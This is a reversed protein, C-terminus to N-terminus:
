KESEQLPIVIHFSTGEEGSEVSIDWGHAEVIKRVISLGLGVSDQTSFGYDFILKQIEPPIPEGDNTVLIILHTETSTTKITITQPKGHIIANELLNTFVQSLKGQDCLVTPLQDHTFSVTKPIVTSAVREILLNLDVDADKEVALGADALMLSRKLLEKMYEIQKSIIHSENYEYDLLQTYGEISTLCNNLDHAIFHAFESLEEKQRILKEEAKKRETIDRLVGLFNTPNGESDSIVAVSLDAPYTSGDKRIMSYEINRISGRELLTSINNVARDQDEPIIFDFANRGILDAERAGYLKVAQENVMLIKSETDSLIIADPSLEILRRYREESRVLEDHTRKQHTIDTVIGLIAREGEYDINKTTLIGHIRKGNKTLLDYEVPEVEEGKMHKRFNALIKEKHEPAILSLFDFDPSYFEDCTYGLSEESKKNTYVVSGKKNIFIMNPSKEALTRFKAESEKLTKEVQKVKTIDIVSVIVKALSEEYGSVVSLRVILDMKEGTLKYGPFEGQYGTKGNFLAVLEEKFLKTAEENFFATLGEFFESISKAEYLILTTNNVDIIEVMQALNEIEEPNSDLYQQLDQVGQARLQDFHRKVVSFDEEWLSIPSEDFIIRYREESEILAKEMRKHHVVQRIVHRLEGFQSEADWSKEIYYNAGLNLANIAVEERGRGTFIIVPLDIKKDRLKSLLELGDMGPMQYDTVIVDFDNGKLEEFVQLPNSLSHFNIEGGGIVNMFKQTIQLFSPEDDVHLVHIVEEM